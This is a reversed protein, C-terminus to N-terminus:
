LRGQMDRYITTVEASYRPIWAKFRCWGTKSAVDIEATAEANDNQPELFMRKKLLREYQNM